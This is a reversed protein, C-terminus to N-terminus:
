HVIYKYLGLGKPKLILLHRNVNLAKKIPKLILYIISFEFKKVNQSVGKRSIFWSGVEPGAM